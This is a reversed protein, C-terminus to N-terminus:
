AWINHYNNVAILITICVSNICIYSEENEASRLNLYMEKELVGTTRDTTSNGLVERGWAQIANSFHPIYGM